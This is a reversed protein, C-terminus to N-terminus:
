MHGTNPSPRPHPCHSPNMTDATDHTDKTTRGKDQDAKTRRQGSGGTRIGRTEGENQDEKNEGRGPRRGGEGGTRVQEGRTGRTEREDQVGNRTRIGMERGSGRM